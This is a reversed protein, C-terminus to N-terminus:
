KLFGRLMFYYGDLVECYIDEEGVNFWYIEAIAIITIDTKAIIRFMKSAIELIFSFVGFLIIFINVNWIRMADDKPPTYKDNKANNWRLMKVIVFQEIM